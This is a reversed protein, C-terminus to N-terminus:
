KTTPPPPPRLIWQDKTAHPLSTAATRTEAIWFTIVEGTTLDKFKTMEGNVMVAQNPGPKVSFTDVDKGNADVMTVTTRDASNLYVKANFKAYKMGQYVRGEICAAPAKPYKKMFADSFHIDACAVKPLKDPNSFGEDAWALSAPLALVVAAAIANRVKM